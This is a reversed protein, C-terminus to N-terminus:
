KTEESEKYITMFWSWKLFTISLCLANTWTSRTIEITPIIYVSYMGAMANSISRTVGFRIKMKIRREM